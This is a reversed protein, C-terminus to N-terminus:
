ENERDVGSMRQEVGGSCHTVILSVFLISIGKRVEKKKERERGGGKMHTDDGVVSISMFSFVFGKVRLMGVISEDSCCVFKM